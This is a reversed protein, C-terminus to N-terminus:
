TPPIAYNRNPDEPFDDGDADLRLMKGHLDGLDQALNGSLGDGIGIYLSGDPGFGLWGGVAFASPQPVKLVVRASTPDAKDPTGSPVTYRAVVTTGAADTYNVFFARNSAFDPHFALGLLGQENGTALGSIQL